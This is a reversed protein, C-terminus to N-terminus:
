EAVINGKVTDEKYENVFLYTGAKAARVKIVIDAGAAVVKEIKLGKSEIEAAASSGNHVKLTFPKDAAVKLESPTFATDSLSVEVVADEALSPAVPAAAMVLATAGLLAIKRSVIRM